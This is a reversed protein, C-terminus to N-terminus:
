GSFPLGPRPEPRPKYQDKKQAGCEPVASCMTFVSVPLNGFSSEEEDRSQQPNRPTDVLSCNLLRLKLRCKGIIFRVKDM